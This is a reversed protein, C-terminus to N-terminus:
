GGRVMEPLLLSQKVFGSADSVLAETAEPAILSGIDRAFFIPTIISAIIPINQSVGRFINCAGEKLLNKEKVAEEEQSTKLVKQAVKATKEAAGIVIQFSGVMTLLPLAFVSGVIPAYSFVKCIAALSELGEKTLHYATALNEQIDSMKVNRIDDFKLKSNSHMYSLCCILLKLPYRLQSIDILGRGMNTLGLYINPKGNSGATKKLESHEIKGFYKVGFWAVGRVTQLAGMPLRMTGSYISVIPICSLYDCALTASKFQEDFFKEVSIIKSVFLEKITTMSVPIAEGGNSPPSFLTPFNLSSFVM